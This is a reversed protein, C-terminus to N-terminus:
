RWHLLRCGPPNTMLARRPDKSSGTKCLASHQDIVGDALALEAVRVMSRTKSSAVEHHSLGGAQALADLKEPSPVPDPKLGIAQLSSHFDARMQQAREWGSAQDASAWPGPHGCRPCLFGAEDGPEKVNKGCNGCPRRAGFLGM